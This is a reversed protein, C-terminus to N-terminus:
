GILQTRRGLYRGLVRELPENTTLPCYDVGASRFAAAYRELLDNMVREYDRAIVEPETALIGGNELDEFRVPGKWPLKLEAPDLVHLVIVEHKKYRYFRVSQTVAEPDDLLDSILILLGRRKLRGGFEELASSLSFDGAAPSSQTLSEAIVALHGRSSRPAIREPAGPGLLALGAADQQRLILYAFCAALTRSYEWKDLVGESGFGMSASRDLLITARLTTEEEYQKVTFRDTKAFIKWDLRKLEDGFTYPRHDSFELSQGYARSRHSGAAFGEVVTKARVELGGIKALVLPDLVKM